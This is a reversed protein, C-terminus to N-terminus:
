AARKSKGFTIPAISEIRIDIETSSSPFTTLKAPMQDSVLTNPLYFNPSPILLDNYIIQRAITFIQVWNQPLPKSVKDHLFCFIDVVHHCHSEDEAM